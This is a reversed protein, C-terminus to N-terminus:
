DWDSSLAIQATGRWPGGYAMIQRNMLSSSLQAGGGGGEGGSAGAGGRSAPHLSLSGPASSLM